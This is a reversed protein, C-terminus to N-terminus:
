ERESRAAQGLRTKDRLYTVAGDRKRKADKHGVEGGPQEGRGRGNIM